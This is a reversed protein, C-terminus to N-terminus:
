GFVYKGPADRLIKYGKNSAGIARKSVEGISHEDLWYNWLPWWSGPQTETTEAWTDPDIYKDMPDHTAVQFKRRPHEPGCVIGANHGGTTLLFTVESRSLQQIKYVSKWPAVHDTTTGVIFFPARIDQIAIPKGNVIYKCSALKNEMFLDKLYRSHMKAPMRTGDANWAMLANPKTELGLYYREIAPNYIMDEARLAKFSDGMSAAQLFGDTWMMSDLFALQSAGLFRKIEGPETFDAQAAFLTISNLIDDDRQALAAAGITLLTGGICYGTANVKTDPVITKVADLAAFFGSDLYDDLCLERDEENPNKWSIMFVTKGQDVLYKVLSKEPTLDLIYYKMIWAPVILVPEQAVTKTTPKYQILEILENEFIVKGPTLALNVGVKFEGMEPTNDKLLKKQIDRQLNLIGELLNRGKEDWTTKLVEPNTQPLNSPALLLFIQENIFSVLDSSSSEMGPIDTTLEKLWGSTAQHSKALFNFPPKSWLEHKFLSSTPESGNPSTKSLSAASVKLIKEALSQLLQLRRGPTISLHGLWDTYALALQMPSMGRTLKSISARLRTDIADASEDSLKPIKEILSDLIAVLDSTDNDVSETNQFDASTNSVTSDITNSSTSDISATM